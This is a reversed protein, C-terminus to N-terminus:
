KPDRVKLYDILGSMEFRLQIPGPCCIVSFLGGWDRKQRCAFVLVGVGSSDLFTARTLDVDIAPARRVDPNSLIARMDQAASIDLEGALSVVILPSGETFQM